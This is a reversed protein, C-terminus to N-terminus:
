LSLREVGLLTVHNLTEGARRQLHCVRPVGPRWHQTQRHCLSPGASRARDEHSLVAGSTQGSDGSVAAANQSLPLLLSPFLSHCVSDPFSPVLCSHALSHSVSQLLSPLCPPFSCPMLSSTLSQSFFPPFALLSPVLCSHALSHSVSSPLSPLSPPLTLSPTIPPSM